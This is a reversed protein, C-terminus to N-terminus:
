LITVSLMHNNDTVGGARCNYLTWSGRRFVDKVRQRRQIRSSGVKTQLQQSMLLVRVAAAVDVVVVVTGYSWSPHPPPQM